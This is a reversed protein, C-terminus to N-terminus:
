ACRPKGSGGSHLSLPHPCFLGGRGEPSPQPSPFRRSIGDFGKGGYWPQRHKTLAACRRRHGAFRSEVEAVKAWRVELRCCADLVDCGATGKRKRRKTFVVRGEAPRADYSQSVVWYVGWQNKVWKDDRLMYDFANGECLDLRDKGVIFAWPSPSERSGFAVVFNEDKGGRDAELVIQGIQEAYERKKGLSLGAFWGAAAPSKAPNQKLDRLPSADDGVAIDGGALLGALILSLIAANM